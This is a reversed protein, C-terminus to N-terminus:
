LGFRNHMEVCLGDESNAAGSVGGAIAGAVTVVESCPEAGIVMVESSTDDLILLPMMKGDILHPSLMGEACEISSM